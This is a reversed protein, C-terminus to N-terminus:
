NPRHFGLPVLPSSMPTFFAMTFHAKNKPCKTKRPTIPNQGEFPATRYFVAEVYPLAAEYLWMFGKSKPIIEYCKDSVYIHHYIPAAQSRLFGM